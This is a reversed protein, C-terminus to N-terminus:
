VYASGRSIMSNEYNYGIFMDLIGLVGVDGIANGYHEFVRSFPDVNEVGAWHYLIQTVLARRAHIDAEAIFSEVL